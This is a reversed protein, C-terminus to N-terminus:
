IDNGQGCSEIRFATNRCACFTTKINGTLGSLIHAGDGSASAGIENAHWIYYMASGTSARVCGGRENKLGKIEDAFAYLIQAALEAPDDSGDGLKPLEFRVRHLL